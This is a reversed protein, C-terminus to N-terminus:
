QNAENGDKYKELIKSAQELLGLINDKGPKNASQSAFYPLPKKNNLCYEVLFNACDKGTYGNSDDGLDHDFCIVYPLEENEIYDCFQYYTRVWCIYDFPVPSFAAWKVKEDFPDRVDDLWLLVKKNEM